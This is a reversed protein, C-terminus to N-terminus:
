GIHLLKQMARPSMPILDFRLCCCCAKDLPKWRYAAQQQLKASSTVIDM